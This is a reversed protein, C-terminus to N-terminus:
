IFINILKKTHNVQMTFKGIIYDFYVPPQIGFMNPDNGCRSFGSQLGESALKKSQSSKLLGVLM